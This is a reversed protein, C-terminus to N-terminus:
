SFGNFCSFMLPFGHFDIFDNSFGHFDTFIYFFVWSFRDVDVLLNDFIVFVLHFDM